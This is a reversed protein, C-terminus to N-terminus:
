HLTTNQSTIHTSEVSEVHDKKIVVDHSIIITVVVPAYAQLWDCHLYLGQGRPLEGSQMVAVGRMMVDYRACIHHRHHGSANTEFGGHHCLDLFLFLVRSLGVCPVRSLGGVDDHSMMENTLVHNSIMECLCRKTKRREKKGKRTRTEKREKGFRQSKINAPIIAQQCKIVNTRREMHADNNQQGHSTISDSDVLLLLYTKVLTTVTVHTTYHASGLLLSAINHSAIYSTSRKTRTIFWGIASVSVPGSGSTTWRAAGVLWIATTTLPQKHTKKNINEQADTKQKNKNRQKSKKMNKQRVQIHQADKWLERWLSRLLDRYTCHYWTIAHSITDHWTMDHLTNHNSTIGIM